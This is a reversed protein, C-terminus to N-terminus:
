NYLGFLEPRLLPKIDPDFISVEFTPAGAAYPAIQYNQFQFVIADGSVTFVAFNEIKPDLGSGFTKGKPDFLIDPDNKFHETALRSIRALYETKLLFLDDLAYIKGNMDFTESSYSANGHAGGDDRWDQYLYSVLKKGHSAEPLSQASVGASSGTNIVSPDSYEEMFGAIFDRVHKEAREAFPTNTQYTGEAEVWNASSEGETPFATKKFSATKVEAPFTVDPLVVAKPVSSPVIPPTDVNNEARKQAVYSFVGGAALIVAAFAIFRRVVLHERKSQKEM